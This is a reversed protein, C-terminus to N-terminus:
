NLADIISSRFQELVGVTLGMLVIVAPGGWVYIHATAIESTMTNLMFNFGALSVVFEIALVAILVFVYRSM